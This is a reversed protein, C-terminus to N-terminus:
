HDASVSVPAPYHGQAQLLFDSIERVAGAGGALGTVLDAHQKVEPHANPVSFGLGVHQMVPLDPLDDGAYAIQERQHGGSALIEDLVVLKDERGKYLLTIGLEGARWSLPVSDRGSIIGVRIGARQLLKIGHGDLTNFVKLEEGASGVYLRGDTLVGDVDLLLLTIRAAKEQALQQDIQFHM